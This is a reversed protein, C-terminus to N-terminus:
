STLRSATRRYPARWSRRTHLDYDPVIALLIRNGDRLLRCNPGEARVAAEARAFEAASFPTASVIGWLLSVAVTFM